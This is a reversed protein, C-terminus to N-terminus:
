KRVPGREKPAEAQRAEHKKMRETLKARQEPTLLRAAEVLAQTERKSIQDQLTSQKVRLAEVAAADVTPAILLAQTQQRLTHLTEHQTKIDTRVTEFIQKLQTRQAETPEAAAFLHGIPGGAFFGPGGPHGFGGPGGPGGHQGPGRHQPGPGGPFDPGGRFDPGPGPGPGGPEGPQDQFEAGGPGADFPAPQAIVAASGLTLALAILSSKVLGTTQVKSSM